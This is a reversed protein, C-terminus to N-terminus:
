NAGFFVGHFHRICGTKVSMRVTAHRNISCRYIKEEMQESYLRIPSQKPQETRPKTQIVM